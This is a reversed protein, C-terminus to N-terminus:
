RWVSPLARLRSSNLLHRPLPSQGVASPSPCHPRASYHYALHQPETCVHDRTHRSRLFALSESTWGRLRTDDAQFTRPPAQPRTHDVTDPHFLVAACCCCMSVRVQTHSKAADELCGDGPALWEVALIASSSRRQVLLRLYGSVSGQQLYPGEGLKVKLKLRGWLKRITTLWAGHEPVPKRGLAFKVGEMRGNCCPSMPRQAHLVEFTKEGLLCTGKSQFDEPSRLFM